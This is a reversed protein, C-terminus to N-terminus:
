SGEKKMLFPLRIVFVTGKGLRSKAAITGRFRDIIKACLALGLGTGKGPPKTTFFPDFIRGLNEEPIGCGNDSIEFQLFPDEVSNKLTIEGKGSIADVANSLINLFVQVLQEEDALVEPAPKKLESILRVNQIDASNQLLALAEELAGVADTPSLNEEKHRAFSLLKQIIEKCRYTHRRITELYAPFKNFNKRGLLEEMRETNAAIIGLPNNIEHAIGSAMEGLAVMKGAQLLQADTQRRLIEQSAALKEAMINFSDGLEQLEDGTTIGVRESLDGGAMRRAVLILERLSRHLRRDVALALAFGIAVALIAMIAARHIAGWIPAYLSGSSIGMRVKGVMKEEKLIPITVDYLVGAYLPDRLGGTEQIMFQDTEQSKQSLPDNPMTGVAEEKTGALIRGTLDQVLVYQVDPEHAEKAMLAVTQLLGLNKEALPLTCAHAICRGFTGTSDRLFGKMSRYESVVQITGFLLIFTCQLVVIVVIVRWRFSWRSLRLKM